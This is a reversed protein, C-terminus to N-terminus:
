NNILGLLQNEFKVSFVNTNNNVIRSNKDVIITKTIPHIALTKKAEKSDKLVYENEFIFRNIKLSKRSKELGYNDVNITIFAVEPYKNKLEKIQKHSDKFHEHYTHSWFSIVSPADIITSIDFEVNNYDVLKVNPLKSGNKLRNLSKTFSIMKKKGKKSESKSLYSKLITNNNEINENKSIYNIALEYLLDNKIAVNTLLSDILKLRDLNYCLSNRNFHKSNSHLNHERLAMNSFSYRLFKNYKHYNSSFNSNYDIDKRYDYFDKPLSKLIARKNKGYHVFPYVEKSSYYSFDINVQAIKEFLPSTEYKKKFAKLNKVKVAKLSDIRKQYISPTLQCLKFIYKEEVENELFGNILYNNKKAGKGTFVLSEDFELTNLRFLVSDKPELLIMQFEYGHSFSYLGKKLDNIKYLFRNRGDLMITDITAESKLLVVYNTTPNIIEGGIYAYNIDAESTDQKCASLALIALIISFYLKM